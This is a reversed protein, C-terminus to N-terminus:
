VAKYDRYAHIGWSQFYSKFSIVTSRERIQQMDPSECRERRIREKGGKKGDEEEEYETQPLTGCKESSGTKGFGYFPEACKWVLWCSLDKAQYATETLACVCLLAWVCRCIEPASPLCAKCHSHGPNPYPESSLPNKVSWILNPEVSHHISPLLGCLHLISSHAFQIWLADKAFSTEQCQSSM